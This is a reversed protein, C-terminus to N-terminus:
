KISHRNCVRRVKLNTRTNHKIDYQRKQRAQATEINKKAQARIKEQIGIMTKVKENLSLERSTEEERVFSIDIPLKAECSCMLFFPTYKTSQQRSTLVNDILQDWDDQRENVLKQLAAKLTQNLREDLGNPQPHYASTVLHRFGTLEELRNMVQNCFKRGQDTIIEEPSGHRLIMKYLFGLTHCSEKTPIAAAEVWKSFYHILTM